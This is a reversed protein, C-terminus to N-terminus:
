IDKRELHPGPRSKLIDEKRHWPHWEKPIEGQALGMSKLIEFGRMKGAFKASSTEAIEDVDGAVWSPVGFKKAQIYFENVPEHGVATLVSRM